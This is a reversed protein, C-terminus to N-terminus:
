VVKWTQVYLGAWFSLAANWILGQTNSREATSSCCASEVKQGDCLATILMETYGHASVCTNQYCLNWPPPRGLSSSAYKCYSPWTGWFATYLWVGSYPLAMELGQGSKINKEKLYKDERIPSFHCRRIKSHIEKIILSSRCRKRHKSALQM